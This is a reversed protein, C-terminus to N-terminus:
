AGLNYRTFDKQLYLMSIEAYIYIKCWAASRLCTTNWNWIYLPINTIHTGETKADYLKISANQYVIITLSSSLILLKHSLCKNIVRAKFDKLKKKLM